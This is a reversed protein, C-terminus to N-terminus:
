KFLITELLKSDLGAISDISGKVDKIYKMGNERVAYGGAKNLPEESNVYELIDNSSNNKMTVVSKTLYKNINANKNTQVVVTMGTYVDHSKNNLKTLMDIANEKTHPKGLFENNLFAMTDAGIVVLNDYEDKNKNWIDVTKLYSLEQVLETINTIKSKLEDENVDSVQIEFTLKYKSFVENLLKKRSPSQSALIIKYKELNM